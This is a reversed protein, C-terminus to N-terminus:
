SSPRPWAEFFGLDHEYSLGVARRHGVLHRRLEHPLAESPEQSVVSLEVDPLKAAGREFRPTAQMFFPAAFIAYKSM